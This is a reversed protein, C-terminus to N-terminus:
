FKFLKPVIVCCYRFTLPEFSLDNSMIITSCMIAPQQRHCTAHCFFISKSSKWDNKLLVIIKM